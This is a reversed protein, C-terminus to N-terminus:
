TSFSALCGGRAGGKKLRLLKVVLKMIPGMADWGECTTNAATRVTEDLVSHWDFGATYFTTSNSLHGSRAQWALRGVAAAATRTLQEQYYEPNSNGSTTACLGKWHTTETFCYRATRNDRWTLLFIRWSVLLGCQPKCLLGGNTAALRYILPAYQPKSLLNYINRSNLRYDLACRFECSSRAKLSSM